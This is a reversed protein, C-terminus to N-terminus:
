GYKQAFRRESTLLYGIGEIWAIIMPIFTWSFLLYCIGWGTEGLYFKHIGLGGLLFALVAALVRSKTGIGQFGGSAAAAASSSSAGGGANMFVMPQQARQKLEEVARLTSDIFEGCYRCKKAEPLIKEACYPCSALSEAPPM